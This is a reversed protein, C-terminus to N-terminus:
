FSILANGRQAHWSAHPRNFMRASVLAARRSFRSNLDDMLSDLVTRNAPFNWNEPLHIWRKNECGSAFRPAFIRTGEPYSGIVAEGLLVIASPQGTVTWVTPDKSELVVAKAIGADTDVHARAMGPNKQTAPSEVPAFSMAIHIETGGLIQGRMCTDVSRDSRTKKVTHHEAIAFDSATPLAQLVPVAPLNRSAMADGSYVFAYTAFIGVCVAGILGRIMEPKLANM